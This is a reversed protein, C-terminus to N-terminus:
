THSAVHAFRASLTPAFTYDSALVLPFFLADTCIYLRIAKRKRPSRLISVSRKTTRKLRRSIRVLRPSNVRFTGSPSRSYCYSRTMTCVEEMGEGVYWHVFARKSYLLDFKHDSLTQTLHPEPFPRLASVSVLGRAPLPRPAISFM